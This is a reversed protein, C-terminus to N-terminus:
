AVFWVKDFAKSIDLFVVEVEKGGELAKYIKHVPFILQNITSDGPRFGSQFKYLFGIEMLFNYLYFFVVRECIKSFGALLSVPFKRAITIMLM